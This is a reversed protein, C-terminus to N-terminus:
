LWAVEDSMPFLLSVNVQVLLHFVTNEPFASLSAKILKPEFVKSIEQFHVTHFGFEKTKKRRRKKLKIEGLEVM